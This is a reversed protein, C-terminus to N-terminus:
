KNPSSRDLAEVETISGRSKAAVIKGVCDVFPKQEARTAAVLPLEEITSKNIALYGGALHKDQFKVNLYYSLYKSNLLALLFRPDFSGYDYIPYVGVGVMGLHYRELDHDDIHGPLNGYLETLDRAVWEKKARLDRLTLAVLLKMDM